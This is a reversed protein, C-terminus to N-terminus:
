RRILFFHGLHDVYIFGNEKVVVVYRLRTNCTNVASYVEYKGVAEALAALPEFGVDELDPHRNPYVFAFLLELVDGTETLYVIEDKSDVDPGPFAGTYAELLAKHLDFVRGDSSQM